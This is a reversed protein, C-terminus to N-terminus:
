NMTEKISQLVMGIKPSKASASAKADQHLQQSSAILGLVALNNQYLHKDVSELANPNKLSSLQLLGRKAKRQAQKIYSTSSNVIESDNIRVLGKSTIIDFCKHEELLLLRAKDLLYRRKQIDEQVLESLQDYTIMQGIALQSLVVKIAHVRAQIQARLVYRGNNKM